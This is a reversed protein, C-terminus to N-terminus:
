ISRQQRTRKFNPTSGEKKRVLDRVTADRKRLGVRPAIWSQRYEGSALTKMNTFLHAGVERELALGLMTTTAIIMMMMM